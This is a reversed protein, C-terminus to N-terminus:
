TVTLNNKKEILSTENFRKWNDLYKYPYVSKRLLLCFINMDRDCFWYTNQFRKTVGKEFEKENLKHWDVCKFTPTNDKVAAYEFGSKFNKCKYRHVGEAHINAIVSLSSAM